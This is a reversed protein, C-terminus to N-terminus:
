LTLPSGKAHNLAIGTNKPIIRILILGGKVAEM